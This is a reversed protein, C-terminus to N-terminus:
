HRFFCKSRCMSRRPHQQRRRSLAEGKQQGEASETKPGTEAETDEIDEPMGLRDIAHQVDEMNVVNRGKDMRETFLEAIRAEIDALIEMREAEDGFRRELSQLYAELRQYADEDIQFVLGGLNSSITRKM